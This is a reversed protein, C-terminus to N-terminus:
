DSNKLRRILIADNKSFPSVNREGERQQIRLLSSKFIIKSRIVSALSDIGQGPEIENFPDHVHIRCVMTGNTESQFYIGGRSSPCSLTIPSQVLNRPPAGEGSVRNARPCRPRCRTPHVTLLWQWLSSLVTTMGCKCWWKGIVLFFLQVCGHDCSRESSVRRFGMNDERREKQRM